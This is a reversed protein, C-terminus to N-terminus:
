ETSPPSTSAAIGSRRRMAERRHAIGTLWISMFLILMGDFAHLGGVWKNSDGGNALVPQAALTFVALLFAGGVAARSPRAVLAMLFLLLAVFGLVTGLARHPDFSSANAVKRAHDGFVGVGALFVQVLVAVVFLGALYGYVRDVNRRWGTLLASRPLATQASETM